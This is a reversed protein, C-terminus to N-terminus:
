AGQVAGRSKGESERREKKKRKEKRAKVKRKKCVGNRLQSMKRAANRRM